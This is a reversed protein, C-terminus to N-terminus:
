PNYKLLKQKKIEYIKWRDRSLLNEDPERNTFVWICPSDIWYCKYKYRLDYLKGKKIQEIATYIGNLRDKDMARPLDMFIPNPNRLDKSECINCMTQILEKMDNIPPLDIGNMKLECISALTSKGNNGKKDYILNVDRDNFNKSIEIVSQQWDWLKLDRFQRPIYLNKETREDWPGDIRTDEKTVYFV